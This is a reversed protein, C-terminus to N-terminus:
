EKQKGLVTSADLFGRDFTKHIRKKNSDMFSRLPLSGTPQISIIRPDQQMKKLKDRKRQAYTRLKEAMPNTYFYSMTKFLYEDPAVGTPHNTIVVVKDHGDDFAKEIPLPDTIGGDIYEGENVSVAPYMFPVACAAKMLSFVNHKEPSVYVAEGRDRDTLTFNIRVPSNVAEEVDLWLNSDEESVIGALYELDLWYRGKFIKKLDVFQDGHIHNRWVHEAPYHQGSAFFMAMCVGVSSAYVSDVWSNGLKRILRVMAGANYAGRLGGPGIVLATKTDNDFM